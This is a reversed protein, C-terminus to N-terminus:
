RGCHSSQSYQKGQSKRPKQCLKGYMTTAISSCHPDVVYQAGNTFTWSAHSPFRKNMEVQYKRSWVQLITDVKPDGLMLFVYVYLFSDPHPPQPSFCLVHPSASLAPNWRPPFFPFPLDQQRCSGWTHGHWLYVNFLCSTTSVFKMLPFVVAFNKGTQTTCGQSLYRPAPPIRMSSSNWFKVSLTSLLM